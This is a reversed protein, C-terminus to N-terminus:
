APFYSFYRLSPPMVGRAMMSFVNGFIAFLLIWFPIGAILGDLFLAAFRRGRSALPMGAVGSVVDRMQEHKCQACYPQGGITVLCDGCFPRACRTCNQLGEIVEWHNTCSIGPVSSM